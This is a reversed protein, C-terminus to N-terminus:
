ARADLLLSDAALPTTYGQLYQQAILQGVLSGDIRHLWSQAGLRSHTSMCVALQVERRWIAQQEEEMEQKTFFLPMWEEKEYPGHFQGDDQELFIFLYHAFQEM